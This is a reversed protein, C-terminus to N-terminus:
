GLNEEQLLVSAEDYATSAAGGGASHARTNAGSCKENDAEIEVEIKIEAM